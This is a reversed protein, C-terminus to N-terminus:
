LEGREHDSPRVKQDITDLLTVLMRSEVVFFIPRQSTGDTLTSQSEEILRDLLVSETQIARLDVIVRDLEERLTEIEKIKWKAKKESLLQDHLRQLKERIEETATHHGEYRHLFDLRARLIVQYRFAVSLRDRRLEDLRVIATTSM